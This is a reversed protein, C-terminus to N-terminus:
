TGAEGQAAGAGQGSGQERDGTGQERWSRPGDLFRDLLRNVADPRELHPLHRTYKV